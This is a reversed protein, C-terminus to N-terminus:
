RGEHEGDDGPVGVGELGVLEDVPAEGEQHDEEAAAEDPDERLHMAVGDEAADGVGLGVFEAAVEVDTDGGESGDGDQGPEGVLERLYASTEKFDKM